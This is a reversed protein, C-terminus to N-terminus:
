EIQDPVVKPRVIDTDEVPMEDIRRPQEGGALDCVAVKEGEGMGMAALEGSEVTADDCVGHFAARSGNM